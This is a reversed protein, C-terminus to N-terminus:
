LARNGLDRHVFPVIDRSSFTCFAAIGTRAVCCRCRGARFVAKRVPFVTALISKREVSAKPVTPPVLPIAESHCIISVGDRAGICFCESSGTGVAVGANGAESLLFVFGHQEMNCEPIAAALREWEEM